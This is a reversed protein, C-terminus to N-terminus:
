QRTRPPPAHRDARRYANTWPLAPPSVPPLGSLPSTFTRRFNVEEDPNFINTSLQVRVNDTTKRRSVEELEEALTQNNHHLDQQTNLLSSIQALRTESIRRHYRQRQRFYLGVSCLLTIPPDPYRHM